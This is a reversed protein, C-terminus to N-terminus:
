SAANPENRLLASQYVPRLDASRPTRHFHTEEQDRGRRHEGGSGLLSSGRRTEGIIMVEIKLADAIRLDRGVPRMDNVNALLGVLDFVAPFRRMQITLASPLWFRNRALPEPGRQDDSALRTSYIASPSGRPGCIKTRHISASPGAVCIVCAVSLTASARQDGSPFHIANEMNTGSFSLQFMLM